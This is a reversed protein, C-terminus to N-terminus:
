IVFSADLEAVDTVGLLGLANEFEARMLRLAHAVGDEGAAALAYLYPRCFFVGRAGLALAIAVDVGRRVGGDLYVEVRDAVADVVEELVDISAPARDLQRGGHNSVVVAAVGQAAARAADEGTLIGKVAVPVSAVGQLWEVDDWTASPSILDNLLTTHDTGAPVLGTFNGFPFAGEAYVVPQRLERERYGPYPLDATLVVAGFGAACAREVLEASVARDRHLYLQFWRPGRGVDAVEELSRSSLTSLCMLAGARRAARATAVEGDPHAFGNQSAPALAVPLAVSEGLFTTATDVVSADRLVRPRLRRRRFADVNDRLTTEDGAGGSYYAYAAPSLREKAIPEFDNLNLVESLASAEM